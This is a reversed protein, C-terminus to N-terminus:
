ESRFVVAPDARSARRAPVWTAAVGVVVVAVLAAGLTSLDIPSIGFLWRSLLPALTVSVAVGLGAGVWMPALGQRVFLGVIEGPRAGIALRIGVEKARRAVVFSVVGYLGIASLFLALGASVVLVAGGLRVETYVARRQADLTLTETVPVAPDVREIARRVPPFLGDVSGAVRIAVRADIQPEFANQWFAVYATAPPAEDSRHLRYNGVVGVVEFSKGGLLLTRGVVDISSWLRRALAENVLAVPPSTPTDRDTFERGSLVPVRLTAFFRPGVDFYDVEPRNRSTAPPEGPLAVAARETSQSAISGRVPVADIVGPVRRIGELARVLYTQAREPTYGVLRPRLRLQALHASDIDGAVMLREFSRTLLGAAVLLALALMMQGAVLVARARSRTLSAGGGKLTEAPDVRSARLAPFVGFLLVTVVTAAIAFGTVRWDISVALHRVYGESDAELYRMLARSTWFSLVVGAASGAVGIILSETLLQRTVRWQSAGLSRRLALEKQRAIGRALLLGSLNACAVAMIILAIAALLMGLHAYELRQRVPVGSALEAAITRMSDSPDTADLVSARLSSLEAHATGLSVGPALRGLVATIACSRDFANCWRYGTRLMMTPIWLENVPGPVVGEFTAPAVGIITFARGNIAIREGLASREGGFRRQWLGYGIVAVADRDPVSDEDATFFRGLAPHIGLMEFYEASVVAGTVEASENRATLYLPATSYHAAIRDFAHTNGRLVRYAAFGLERDRDPRDGGFIRVLRRGEPVDLPRLYVTNIFSFVTTTAAIALSVTLVASIAFGRNRLLVQTGYQLDRVFDDLVRGRQQDRTEDAWRARGGFAALAARRADAAPMGRRVNRETAQAIHFEIEEDLEADHRARGLLGTALRGASRMRDLWTMLSM